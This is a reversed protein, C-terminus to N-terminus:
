KEDKKPVAKPAPPAVPAQIAVSKRVGFLSVLPVLGIEKRVVLKEGGEVKASIVNLRGMKGLRDIYEEIPGGMPPEMKKILTATRKGSFELTFLPAPKPGQKASLADKMLEKGRPGFTVFVAEPALAVFVNSQGFVKQAPPPLMEGVLVEHVNVSDVKFADIRVKESADKPAIKLASKLSKELAATDKLGVAAIATFQDNKDPGRMSAAIDLDGSKVTRKLTKFFEDLLEGLEKPGAGDRLAATEKEMLDVFKLLGGQVEDIFLPTQFLLHAMSDDGVIGAFDNKTPKIGAIAKALTTGSKPEVTYEISLNGGKPDLDIRYVIEKGDNLGLRVMRSVMKVLDEIIAKAEAPAPGQNAMEAVQGLFELGQDKLEQPIRDPRIRLVIAAAEKGGVIDMPDYLSKLELKEGSFGIYAYGKHFRMSTDFPAPIPISYVDGKKQPKFPSKEILGVFEKEDAVPVLFVLSSKSFDGNKLGADLTAYFGFPKKPDVGPLLSPDLKSLADREFDKYFDKPLFNKATTKVLDILHDLSKAQLAITPGSGGKADGPAPAANLEPAFLLGASCVFLVVLKM